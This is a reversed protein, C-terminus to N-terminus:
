PALDTEDDDESDDDDAEPQDIIALNDYTLNLNGSQEIEHKDRYETPRRNKLWFIMATTDGALAKRFLANEVMFDAVDKGIRLANFFSLYKRKWNKLTSRSIEMNRAIQEDTLGRRAWGLVLAQGDPTMEGNGQFWRKWKDSAAM